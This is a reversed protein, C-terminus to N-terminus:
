YHTFEVGDLAHTVRHGNDVVTGIIATGQMRISLWECIAEAQQPSVALIM